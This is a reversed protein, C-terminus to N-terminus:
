DPYGVPTRPCDPVSRSGDLFCLHKQPLQGHVTGSSSVHRIMRRPSILLQKLFPDSGRFNLPDSGKKFCSRLHKDWFKSTKVLHSLKDRHPPFVGSACEKM